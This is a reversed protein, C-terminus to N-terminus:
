KKKGEQIYQTNFRPILNTIKIVLSALVTENFRVGSNWADFRLSVFQERFNIETSIFQREHACRRRTHM